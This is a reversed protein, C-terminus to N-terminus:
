YIRDLIGVLEAVCSEDCSSLITAGWDRVEQACNAPAFPIASVELMPLDNQNDGVCYVHEPRIGLMRALRAVMGGKHSGKHTLELLYRNSFISEFLEGWHDLVYRQAQELVPHDEELVVKSWPQPMEEPPCLQFQAMVRQMHRETVENPNWAYISHGHYSEFALRPFRELLERLCQLIEPAQLFTEYVPRDKQFDYISAGNSLVCPANIPLERAQQVFARYGRGTAVGFRGGEQILYRIARKNAESVRGGLSLLTDDYDSMVLVGDFKGM